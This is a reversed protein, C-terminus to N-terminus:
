TLREKQQKRIRLIAVVQAIEGGLIFVISTYYLYLYLIVLTAVNGYTSTYDAVHAVYWGFAQKLLEFAIAAFTAAVLCTRWHIMRSPLYRYILLFMVWVSIFAVLFAYVQTAASLPTLGFRDLARSTLVSATLTLGVNVAFLTGATFVMKIDFIKGEIIGRDQPIDFIACVTTRLTGFLRTAFWVLLLAGLGLFSGSNELLGNVMSDILARFEPGMSPLSSLLLSMLRESADSSQRRLITGAIGLVALCFPVFAVLINFAIAGAMFFINDSGAKEYLRRLFDASVSLAHSLGPPV